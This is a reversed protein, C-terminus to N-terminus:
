LLQVQQDPQAVGGGFFGLLLLFFVGELIICFLEHPFM